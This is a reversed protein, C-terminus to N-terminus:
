VCGKKIHILDISEKNMKTTNQLASELWFGYKMIGLSRHSQRLMEALFCEGDSFAPSWPKKSANKSLIEGQPDLQFRERGETKLGRHKMRWAKWCANSNKMRPLDESTINAASGIRMQWFILDESTIKRRKISQCFKLYFHTFLPSASSLVRTAPYKYRLRGLRRASALRSLRRRAEWIASSNHSLIMFEAGCSSAIRLLRANFASLSCTRIFNRWKKFNLTSIM